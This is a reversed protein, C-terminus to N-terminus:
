HARRLTFRPFRERLASILAGDIGLHPPLGSATGAARFEQLVLASAGLAALTDAARLVAEARLLGSHYTLRFECPIGSAAVLALSEMASEGSGPTGTLADYGAADAKLDFGIWDLQSLLAALREPYAGGTHLGVRFGLGRVRAVAEPLAADVTPEGGSFVVGDLWGRRRQLQADVDAWALPAPGHRAQMHPNHCYGCRWPCGRLFVVAALAGPWDVTSFPEFGGVQIRAQWSAAARTDM